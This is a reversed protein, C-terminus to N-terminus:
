LRERNALFLPHLTDPVTFVVHFYEIPLLDFLRAELSEARDLGQCKPCHRDKGGKGQRIRIRMLHSDIDEARLRLVEGLRLGGAYLTMLIARHKLNGTAQLLRLVEGRGLIVPLKRKHRQYPVKEVIGSRGLVTRYFFRLAAAVQNFYSSSVHAVETLHLLYSRVDDSDLRDPLTGYHAAFRRLAGGYCDITKPSRGRLKLESEMRQYIPEM